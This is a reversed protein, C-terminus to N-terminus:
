KHHLLSITEQKSQYFLLHAYKKEKLFSYTKWNKAKFINLTKGQTLRRQNPNKLKNIKFGAIASIQRKSTSPAKSVKETSLIIAKCFLFSM